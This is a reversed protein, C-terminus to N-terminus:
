EFYVLRNSAVYDIVWKKFIYLHADVLNSHVKVHPFLKFISKMFTVDEDCDAESTMFVLRSTQQDLGM